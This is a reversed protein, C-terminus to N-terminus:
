KKEVPQVEQQCSTNSSKEKIGYIKAMKERESDCGGEGCGSCGSSSGCGNSSAFFSRWLYWAAVAIIAILILYDM